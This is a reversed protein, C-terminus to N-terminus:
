VFETTGSEVTLPSQFYNNDGKMHFVCKVPLSDLEAPANEFALRLRGSEQGANHLDYAITPASIQPQHSKRRAM